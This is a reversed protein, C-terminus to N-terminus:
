KTQKKTLKQVTKDRMQKINVLKKLIKKKKGKGLKIIWLLLRFYFVQKGQTKKEQHAFFYLQMWVGRCSFSRGHVFRSSIPQSYNSCSSYRGCFQLTCFEATSWRIAYSFSSFPPIFQNKNYIFADTVIDFSLVTNTVTPLVLKSARISVADLLRKHLTIFLESSM